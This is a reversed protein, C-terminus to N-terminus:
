CLLLPWIWSHKYTKIFIPIKYIGDQNSIFYVCSLVTHEASLVYSIWFFFCEWFSQRTESCIEDIKEMKCNIFHWTQCPQMNRPMGGLQQTANQGHILIIICGMHITLPALFYQRMCLYQHLPSYCDTVFSSGLYNIYKGYHRVATFITSVTYVIVM